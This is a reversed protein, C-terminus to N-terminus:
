WGMEYLLSKFESLIMATAGWVTQGEVDFYPTRIQMGNRLQITKERIIKEDMLSELRFPIVSKVEKPDPIFVPAHQLTGMYPFVLFNSPPIYLETLKGIVKVSNRSLGIEEETERLATNQLELDGPEFKGGPLSIQGSHVGDYDNRQILPIFITDNEEYLLILVSGRRAHAPIRYKSLNLRRETHAMKLQAEQGPLPM